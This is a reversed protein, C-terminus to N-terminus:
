KRSDDRRAPILSLDSLLLLALGDIRLSLSRLGCAPGLWVMSAPELMPDSRGRRRGYGPVLLYWFIQLRLETPLFHSTTEAMYITGGVAEPSIM